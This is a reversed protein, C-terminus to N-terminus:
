ARKLKDWAVEPEQPLESWEPVQSITQEILDACQEAIFVLTQRMGAAEAM